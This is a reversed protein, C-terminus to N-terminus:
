GALFKDGAKRPARRGDFMQNLQLFTTKTLKFWNNPM